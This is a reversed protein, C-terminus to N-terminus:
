RGYNCLGVVSPAINTYIFGAISNVIQSGVGKLFLGLIMNFVTLFVNFLRYDEPCGSEIFRLDSAMLLLFAIGITTIALIVVVGLSAGLAMV